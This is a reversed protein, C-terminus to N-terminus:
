SAVSKMVYVWNKWWWNQECKRKAFMWYIKDEVFGLGVLFFDIKREERSMIMMCEVSSLLLHDIIKWKKKTVYFYIFQLFWLILELWRLDIRSWLLSFCKRHFGGGYLQDPESLPCSIADGVIKWLFFAAFEPMCCGWDLCCVFKLNLEMFRM